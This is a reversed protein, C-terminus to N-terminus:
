FTHRKCFNELSPFKSFWKEHFWFLCQCHFLPKFKFYFYIGMFLLFHYKGAGKAVADEVLTLDVLFANTSVVMLVLVGMAFWCDAFDSM